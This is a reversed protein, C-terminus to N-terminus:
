RNAQQLLKNIEQALLDAFLISSVYFIDRKLLFFLLFFLLPLLMSTEQNYVKVARQQWM